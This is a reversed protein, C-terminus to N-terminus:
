NNSHKFLEERIDMLTKTQHILSKICLMEERSLDELSKKHEVNKVDQSFDYLKGSHKTLDKLIKINDDVVEKLREFSKGIAQSMLYEVKM